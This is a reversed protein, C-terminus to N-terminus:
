GIQKNMFVTQVLVRGSAGVVSPTAFSELKAEAAAETTMTPTHTGIQCVSPASGACMRRAFRAGASLGQLVNLWFHGGSLQRM